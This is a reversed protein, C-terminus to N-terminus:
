PPTQSYVTGGPGVARALMETTYGGGAFMDLVKMGPRAGTFAFLEVPKRRQDNVRDADSRDSAAIIAAYDPLKEGPAACGALLVLGALGARALAAARPFMTM